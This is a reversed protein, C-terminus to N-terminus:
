QIGCFHFPSTSVLTQVELVMLLQLPLEQTQSSEHAVSFDWAGLLNETHCSGPPYQPLCQTTPESLSPPSSYWTFLVEASPTISELKSHKKYSVIAVKAVTHNGNEQMGGGACTHTNTVWSKTHADWLTSHMCTNKHSTVWHTHMHKGTALTNRNWQHCTPLFRSTGSEHSSCESNNWFCPLYYTKIYVTGEQFKWKIEQETERHVFEHSPCWVYKSESNTSCIVLRTFLKSWWNM